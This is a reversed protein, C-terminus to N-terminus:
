ALEIFRKHALRLERPPIKDSKKILGHVVIAIGESFGYFLRVQVSARVRLEFIDKSIKKSDPPPLLRGYKQLLLLGEDVKEKADLPLTRVFRRVEPHLFYEAM